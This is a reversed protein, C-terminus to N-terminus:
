VLAAGADSSHMRMLAEGVCRRTLTFLPEVVLYRGPGDSLPWRGLVEWRKRDIADPQLPGLACESRVRMLSRAIAGADIVGPTDFDAAEVPQFGTPAHPPLHYHNERTLEDAVLHAIVSVIFSRSRADTACGSPTALELAAAVLDEGPRPHFMSRRLGPVETHADPAIAGLLM